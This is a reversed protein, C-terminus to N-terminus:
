LLRGHLVSSSQVQDTTMEKQTDSLTHRGIYEDVSMWGSSDKYRATVSWRM